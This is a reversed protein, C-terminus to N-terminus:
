TDDDILSNVFDAIDYTNKFHPPWMRTVGVCPSTYCINMMMTYHTCNASHNILLTINLVIPFSPLYEGFM